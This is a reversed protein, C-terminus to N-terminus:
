SRCKYSHLGRERYKLDLQSVLLLIFPSKSAIQQMNRQPFCCGPIDLFSAPQLLLWIFSILPCRRSLFLKSSIRTSTRYHCSSKAISAVRISLPPCSALALVRPLKTCQSSHVMQKFLCVVDVHLPQWAPQM